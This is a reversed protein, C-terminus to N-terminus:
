LRKGGLAQLVALLLAAGLFAVVISGLFGTTGRVFFSLVIGGIFAGAVGVALDALCGLGRGAVVRSAIAGAILGVIIWAVVGGPELSFGSSPAVFTM